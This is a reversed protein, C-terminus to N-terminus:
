RRDARPRTAPSGAMNPPPSARFPLEDQMVLAHDGAIFMAKSMGGTVVQKEAELMKAHDALEAHYEALAARRGADTVHERLWKEFAPTM